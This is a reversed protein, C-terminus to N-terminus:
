KTEYIEELEKKIRDQIKSLARLKTVVIRIPLDRKRRTYLLVSDYQNILDVLRDSKEKDKLIIAMYEFEDTLALRSEKTENIYQIDNISEGNTKLLINAVNVMDEFLFNNKRYKMIIYNECEEKSSFSPNFKIPKM